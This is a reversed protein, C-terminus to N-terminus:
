FNSFFYWLFSHLWCPLVEEWNLREIRTSHNMIDNRPLVAEIKNFLEIIDAQPWGLENINEKGLAANGEPDDNVDEDEEEVEDEDEPDDEEYDDDSLRNEEVKVPYEAFCLLPVFQIM